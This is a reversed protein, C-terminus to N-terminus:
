VEENILIKIDFKKYKIVNNKVDIENYWLWSNVVGGNKPTALTFANGQIITGVTRTIGELEPKEANRITTFTLPKRAKLARQLNAKTRIMKKEKEGAMM